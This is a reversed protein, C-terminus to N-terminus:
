IRVAPKHNRRNNGGGTSTLIESGIATRYEMDYYKPEGYLSTKITFGQRFTLGIGNSLDGYDSYITWFILLPVKIEEGGNLVLFNNSGANETNVLTVNKDLIIPQAFM